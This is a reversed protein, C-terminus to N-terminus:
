HKAKQIMEQAAAQWANADEIQTPVQVLYNVTTDTKQEISALKPRLRDLIVEICKIQGMTLPPELEGKANKELRTMLNSARIDDKTSQAHWKQKRAAM